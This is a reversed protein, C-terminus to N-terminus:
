AIASNISLATCAPAPWTSSSHASRVAVTLRRLRVRTSCIATSSLPQPISASVSRSAMCNPLPVRRSDPLCSPMPRKPMPRGADLIECHVRTSTHVQCSPMSFARCVNRSKCCIASRRCLLTGRGRGSGTGSSQCRRPLVNPGDPVSTTQDLRSRHMQRVALAIISLESYTIPRMYRLHSSSPRTLIRNVANLKPASVSRSPM